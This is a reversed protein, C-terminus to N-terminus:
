IFKFKEYKNKLEKINKENLNKYNTIYKFDLGALRQLIFSICYYGCLFSYSPQNVILNEKFKVYVDIDLSDILRNMEDKFIQPAKDGLCDYYNIEYSELLDIYVAVWHYKNNNDDKLNMIFCCKYLRNKIINDVLLNLDKISIVDLFYKINKMIELIEDKYTGKNSMYKKIGDGYEENIQQEEEQQEEQKIDPNIEQLLEKKKRGRKVKKKEIQQEEQKFKKKDQKIEIDPIVNEFFYEKFIFNDEQIDEINNNIDKIKKQGEEIKSINSLNLTQLDKNNKQLDIYDKYVKYVIKKLDKKNNAEFYDSKNVYFRYKGNDELKYLDDNDYNKIQNKYNDMFIIKEKNDEIKKNIQIVDKNINDLKNSLINNVYGESIKTSIIGTLNKNIDKKIKRRNIIKKKKIKKSLKKILTLIQKKDLNDVYYRKNKFIIYLRNTKKDKKIRLPRIINKM